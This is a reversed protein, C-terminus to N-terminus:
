QTLRRWVNPFSTAHNFRCLAKYSRSGKIWDVTSELLVMFMFLLLISSLVFVIPYNAAFTIIIM